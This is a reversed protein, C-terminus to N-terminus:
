TMENHHNGPEGKEDQGLHMQSSNQGCYKTQFHSQKVILKYYIM